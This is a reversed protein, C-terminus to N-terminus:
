DSLMNEHTELDNKVQRHHISVDDKLMYTCVDISFSLIDDSCNSVNRSAKFSLFFKGQVASVHNM